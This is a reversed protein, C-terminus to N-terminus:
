SPLRRAGAVEHGTRGEREPPQQFGERAEGGKESPLLCSPDEHYVYFDQRFFHHHPRSNHDRGPSKTRENFAKCFEMINVGHQGLAPGVPPSPTAQGASLQLKVMAAVKKAM